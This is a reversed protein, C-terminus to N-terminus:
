KQRTRIAHHFCHDAATQLRCKTSVSELVAWAEGVCSALCKVKQFIQDFEQTHQYNLHDFAGGALGEFADFIGLRWRSNLFKGM